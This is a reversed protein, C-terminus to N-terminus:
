RLRRYRKTKSSHRKIKRSSHSRRRRTISTGGGGGSKVAKPSPPKSPSRSRSKSPSRSRPKSPSRSRSKSPSRSRPKSPSRSRSKPSPSRSRPKPGEIMAMAKIPARATAMARRSALAAIAAARAPQELNGLFNPGRQKLIDRLYGAPFSIERERGSFLRSLLLPEVGRIVAMNRQEGTSLISCDWLLAANDQNGTALLRGNSHFAISTVPGRNGSLRGVIDVTKMNDSFVCMLVSTDASCSVLIPATPHFALGTVADDHEYLTDIHKSRGVKGDPTINIRWIMITTDDSGTAIFPQTPHLAISIVNGSHRKGGREIEQVDDTKGTAPEYSWFLASGEDHATANNRGIAFFPNTPHVAVCRTSVVIDGHGLTRAIINEVFILRTNDPSLTWLKPSEMYEGTVIFSMIPHIAICTVGRRFASPNVSLQTTSLCQHTTTDWVKLMSDASGSILVPATPHFAVCSVPATHGALTALCQHSDTDWLKVDNDGGATAMLHATPHFVVSRVPGRHGELSAVLHIIGKKNSMDIIKQNYLYYIIYIVYLIKYLIKNIVKNNSMMLRKLNKYIKSLIINSCKM